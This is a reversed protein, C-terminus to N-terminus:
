GNKYKKGVLRYVQTLLETIKDIVAGQRDISYHKKDNMVIYDEVAQLKKTLKEYFNKDTFKFFKMDNRFDNLSNQLTLNNTFEEDIFKIEDFADPFKKTLYEDIIDKSLASELNIDNIRKNSYIQWVAALFSVCLSIVSIIIAAMDIKEM